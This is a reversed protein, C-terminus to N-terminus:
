LSCVRINACRERSSVGTEFRQMIPDLVDRYRHVEISLLDFPEKDLDLDNGFRRELEKGTSEAIDSFRDSTTAMVRTPRADDSM